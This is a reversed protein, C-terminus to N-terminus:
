DAKLYALCMRGLERMMVPWEYNTVAEGSSGLSLERALTAFVVYYAARARTIMDPTNGAFRCITEIMDHESKLAARKGNAAIVPDHEARRMTLRLLPAHTRLVDAYAEVYRPVFDDLGTCGRSLNAIMAEESSVLEQMAETLVANVLQDKSAFRLYISGISVKGRRGVDQLTFDENGRELILDRAARLMRELSAKSRGQLPTRGLTVAPASKPKASATRTM